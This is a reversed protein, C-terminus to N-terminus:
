QVNGGDGTKEEKAAAFFRETQSVKLGFERALNQSFFKEAEGTAAALRIIEAKDLERVTRVVKGCGANELAQCLAEEDLGRKLSVRPMGTRFGISGHLLELTKKEGFAEPHRRAWLELQKFPAEAALKLAATAEEYEKRIELIRAEMEAKQAALAVEAAAFEGMTKELEERTEIAGKIEVNTRKM